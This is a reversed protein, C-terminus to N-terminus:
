KAQGTAKSVEILAGKLTNLAPLSQNGQIQDIAIQIRELLMAVIIQEVTPNMM